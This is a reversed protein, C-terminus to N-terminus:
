AFVRLGSDGIGTECFATVKEDARVIFRKGGYSADIQVMWSSRILRKDKRVSEVL